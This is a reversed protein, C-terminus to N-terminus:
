RFLDDTPIPDPKPPARLVYTLGIGVTDDHLRLSRNYYSSLTTHGDIPVDLSTTFGNDESVNHGTVVNTTVRRRTVSTYIKQDGIPLDEYANADFSMGRFLQLSLGTQFHALPGLSTYNKVVLRDVLTTSDGIGLELTPTVIGFSHEFHNNLDFTARGSTLGYLEDGTPATAALTVQYDFLNPTFQVHFAFVLDGPEGRQNVLEAGPRPNASRSEALRYMYIPITVDASFRDNLSYGLAPTMITSWGTASDHVGSFTIGGNVGHVASALGPVQPVDAGTATTGNATPSPVSENSHANTLQAAAHPGVSALALMVVSLLSRM